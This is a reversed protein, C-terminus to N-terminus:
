GRKGKQRRKAERAEIRYFAIWQTFEACSM